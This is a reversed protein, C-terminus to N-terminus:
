VKAQALEGAGGTVFIYKAMLIILVTRTLPPQPERVRFIWPPAFSGVPRQVDGGCTRLRPFM